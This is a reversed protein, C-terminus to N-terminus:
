LRAIEEDREAWRKSVPHEPNRAVSDLVEQEILRYREDWVTPPLQLKAPKFGRKTLSKNARENARRIKGRQQNRIRVENMDVPGYRAEALRKLAKDREMTLQALHQTAEGQTRARTKYDYTGPRQKRSLSEFRRELRRVNRQAARKRPTEGMRAATPQVWQAGAAYRGQKQKAGALREEDMLDLGQLIGERDGVVQEMLGYITALRQAEPTDKFVPLGEADRDLYQLADQGWQQREELRQVTRRDVGGPHQGMRATAEDVRAQDASLRRELPIKEAVFRLARSEGNSIKRGAAWLKRVNANDIAEEVRVRRNNWKDIRRHLAVERRTGPEAQQLWKDVARQSVYGLGSRSYQGKGIAGTTGTLVRAQKAPNRLFAQAASEGVRAARSAAGLRVAAGAGGSALPLIDLLTYGPHRLPHRIDEIVGEVTAKAIDGLPDFDGTAAAGGAKAIEWLGAPMGLAVDKLDAAGQSFVHGITGLIGEDDDEQTAGRKGFAGVATFGGGGAASAPTFLGATTPQRKRKRDRENLFEALISSM